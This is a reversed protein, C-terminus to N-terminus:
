TEPHTTRRTKLHSYEAGTPHTLSWIDADKILVACISNIPVRFEHDVYKKRLVIVSVQSTYGCHSYKNIFNKKM